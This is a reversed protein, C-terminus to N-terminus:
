KYRAAVDQVARRLRAYLTTAPIDLIQAVDAVVYKEGEHGPADLSVHIVGRRNRSQQKPTAWRCNGPEYDGNNNVRDLSLGDPPDGMDRLFNEWTHWDECVQIGRAGYWVYSKDEPNHCRSIMKKWIGRARAHQTYKANLKKQEVYAAFADGRACGCSKKYGRLLKSTTAQTITGCSCVCEWLYRGFKDQGAEEVVLLQGFQLGKLQSKKKM